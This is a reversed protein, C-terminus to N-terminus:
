VPHMVKVTQDALPTPAAFVDISDDDRDVAFAHAARIHPRSTRRLKRLRAAATSACAAKAM